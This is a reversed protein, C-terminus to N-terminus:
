DDSYEADSSQKVLVTFCEKKKQAIKSKKLYIEFSLGLIIAKILQDKIEKWSFFL